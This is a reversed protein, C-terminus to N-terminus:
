VLKGIKCLQLGDAVKDEAFIETFSFEDLGMCKMLKSWLDFANFFVLLILTAPFIKQFQEGILPIPDMAGLMRHFATGDIHLIKLFNVCLPAALKTLYNASFLLSFSDTQRNPHVEYYSSLKLNFLGFYISTTLYILITNSCINFILSSSDNKPILDLIKLDM